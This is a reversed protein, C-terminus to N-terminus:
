GCREIKGYFLIITSDLYNSLKIGVESFLGLNSYGKCINRFSDSIPNRLTPSQGQNSDCPFYVIKSLRKNPFNRYAQKGPTIKVNIKEVRIGTLYVM